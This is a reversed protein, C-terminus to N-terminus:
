RTPLSQQHIRKLWGQKRNSTYAPGGLLFPVIALLKRTDAKADDRFCCYRHYWFNNQDSKISSPSSIYVESFTLSILFRDSTFLLGASGNSLLLQPFSFRITCPSRMLSTRSHSVHHRQSNGLGATWRIHTNETKCTYLQSIMTMQSCKSCRHSPHYRGCRRKALYRRLGYDPGHQLTLACPAPHCVVRLVNKFWFSPINILCNALESESFCQTHAAINFLDSRLYHPRSAVPLTKALLRDSVSARCKTCKM